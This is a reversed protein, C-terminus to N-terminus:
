FFFMSLPHSPIIELKKGCLLNFKEYGSNLLLLLYFIPLFDFKQLQSVIGKKRIPNLVPATRAPGLARDCM